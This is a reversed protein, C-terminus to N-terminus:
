NSNLATPLNINLLNKSQKKPTIVSCIKKAKTLSVKGSEVAAILEPVEKGTNIVAIPAYATGESIHLLRTCYSYLSPLGCDLHLEKESVVEIVRLLYAESKQCSEVAKVAELNDHFPAHLSM